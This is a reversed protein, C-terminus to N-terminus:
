AETDSAEEKKTTKRTRKPKEEGEETEADASPSVPDNNGVSKEDNGVERQGNYRRTLASVTMNHPTM